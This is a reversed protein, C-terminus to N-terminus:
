KFKDKLGNGSLKQIITVLSEFSKNLGRLDVTHKKQANILGIVISELRAFSERIEKLAEQQIWTQQRNVMWFACGCAVAILGFKEAVLIITDIM